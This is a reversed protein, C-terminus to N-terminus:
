MSFLKLPIYHNLSQFPTSTTQHNHYFLYPVIITATTPFHPYHLPLPSSNPPTTTATTTATRHYRHHMILPTATTATTCHDIHLLPPGITTSCYQHHFSLSSTSTTFYNHHYLPPLRTTITGDFFLSTTAPLRDKNVGNRASIAFFKTLLFISWCFQKIILLLQFNIYYTFTHQILVLTDYQVM